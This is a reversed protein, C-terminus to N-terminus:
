LRKWSKGEGKLCPIDIFLKTGNGEDSFIRFNGGLLSVRERIGMLGFGRTDRDQQEDHASFGIGDDEVFLSVIGKELDQKLNIVAKSANSHKLINTLAEQIVRYLTIEVQADFREEIGEANFDVDIGSRKKFDSVLKGAVTLLGLDDLM